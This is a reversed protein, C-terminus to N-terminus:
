LEKCKTIVEFSYRAGSYKKSQNLSHICKCIAKMLHETIFEETLYKNTTGLVRDMDYFKPLVKLCTSLLMLKHRADYGNVQNLQSITMLTGCFGTLETPNELIFQEVKEPTLKKGEGTNRIDRIKIKM